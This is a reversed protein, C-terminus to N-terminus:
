NDEDANYDGLSEEISYVPQPNGAHAPLEVIWSGEGHLENIHGAINADSTWSGTVLMVWHGNRQGDPYVSTVGDITVTHSTAGSDQYSDALRSHSAELNAGPAELSKIATARSQAATATSDDYGVWTRVFAEAAAEAATQDATDQANPAAGQASSNADREQQPTGVYTPSPTFSTDINQGPYARGVATPTPTAATQTREPTTSHRAVGSTGEEKAQQQHHAASFNVVIVALLIVGAAVIGLITLLRRRDM